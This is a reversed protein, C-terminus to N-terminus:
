ATKHIEGVMQNQYTARVSMLLQGLMNEGDMMACAPRGCVCNGWFNDHWSNEEVLCADGTSLLQRLLDSNTGIKIFLLELLIEAKKDEWDPRM